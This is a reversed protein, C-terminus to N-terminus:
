PSVSVTIRPAYFLPLCAALVPHSPCLAPPANDTCRPREQQKYQAASTSACMRMHVSVGARVRRVCVVDHPVPM